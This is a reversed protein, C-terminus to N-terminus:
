RINGINGDFEFHGPIPHGWPYGEGPLIPCPKDWPGPCPHPHPVPKWPRKSPDAHNPDHTPFGHPPRVCGGPLISAAPVGVAKSQITQAELGSM